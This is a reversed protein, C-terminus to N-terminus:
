EVADVGRVFAFVCGVAIVVIIMKAFRRDSARWAGILILATPAITLYALAPEMAQM